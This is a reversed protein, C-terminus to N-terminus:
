SPTQVAFLAEINSFHDKLFQYSELALPQESLGAVTGYLEVEPDNLSMLAQKFSKRYDKLPIIGTDPSTKVSVRPLSPPSNASENLDMTWYGPVGFICFALSWLM